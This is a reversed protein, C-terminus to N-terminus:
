WRQNSFLMRISFFFVYSFYRIQLTYCSCHCILKDNHTGYFSLLMKFPIYLIGSHLSKWRASFCYSQVSIHSRELHIQCINSMRMNLHCLFYILAIFMPILEHCYVPCSLSDASNASFPCLYSVTKHIKIM